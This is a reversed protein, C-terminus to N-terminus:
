WRSADHRLPDADGRREHRERTHGPDAAGKAALRAQYLSECERCMFADALPGM